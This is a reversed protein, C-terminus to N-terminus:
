QNTLALVKKRILYQSQYWLSGAAPTARVQAVQAAQAQPRAVPAAPAAKAAPVAKAAAQAPQRYQKESYCYWAKYQEIWTLDKGCVPCATM